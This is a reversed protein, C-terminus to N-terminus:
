NGDFRALAALREPESGLARIRDLRQQLEVRRNLPKDIEDLNAGRNVAIAQYREVSLQM